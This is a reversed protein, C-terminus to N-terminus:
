LAGRAAAGSLVPYTLKKLRNKAFIKKLFGKTSLPYYKICQSWNSDKLTIKANFYNEEITNRIDKHIRTGNFVGNLTYLSSAILPKLKDM